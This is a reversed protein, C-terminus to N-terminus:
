GGLIEVEDGVRIKGEGNPILNVGFMVGKGQLRYKGLTALPEPGKREGTIQDTTTVICRGCPKPARFTVDGIRIVKWEDEEWPDAGSVVINGRFREMPVPEALRSNLEELSAENVILIPFGDAFSVHDTPDSFDPHVPRRSGEPFYFLRAPRDLAKTIWQTTISGAPIAPVEDNWVTVLTTPGRGQPVMALGNSEHRIQLHEGILSPQYTAMEPTERQSLFRNSEDAVVWRRDGRLGRPEIWSENLAVHRMGKVPYINLGSVFAM